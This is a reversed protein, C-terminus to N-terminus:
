MKVTPLDKWLGELNYIQREGDYFIHCVVNGLDILFWKSTSEVDIHKIKFGAESARFDINEIIAKALRGNRASGIVFYDLFHSQNRFDIVVLDDAQKEDCADYVVKLLDKM